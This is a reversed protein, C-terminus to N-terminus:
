RSQGRDAESQDLRRRIARYADSPADPTRGRATADLVDVAGQMVIRWTSVASREPHLRVLDGVYSRIAEDALIREEASPRAMLYVGRIRAAAEEFDGGDTQLADLNWVREYAAPPGEPPKGIRQALAGYTVVGYDQNLFFDPTAAYVAFLGHNDQISDILHRLNNHAARVDSRRLASTSLEGEDLLLVLGSYELRRALRSLSQLMVRSNTRDVMKQAGFAKRYPGLNGEGKFWSLATARREELAISDGADPLYTQWLGDVIRRFDSDINTAGYLAEQAERLGAQTVRPDGSPDERALTFLARRLVEGLPDIRDLDNDRYMEPSTISQAIRYFVRELKNFPAEDRDLEVTAVLHGADFAAERLLRLFHTKGSGWTGSIFRIRGIMTDAELHEFRVDEIFEDTGVSYSSVFRKPPQGNRLSEVVAIAEDPRLNQTV